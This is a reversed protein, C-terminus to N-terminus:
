GKVLNITIRRWPCRKVTFAEDESAKDRDNQTEKREEKNKEDRGRRSQQVQQQQKVDNRDNRAVETNKQSMIM